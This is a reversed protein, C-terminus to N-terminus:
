DEEHPRFVALNSDTEFVSVQVGALDRGLSAVFTQVQEHVRASFVEMTPNQEYAVVESPELVKLIPDEGHLIARHDYTGHVIQKLDGFDVLMGREDPGAGVVSVTVRLNHGHLRGCPHRPALGLLRHAIALDFSKDIQIM